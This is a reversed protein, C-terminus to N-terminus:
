FLNQISRYRSISILIYKKVHECRSCVNTHVFTASAPIILSHLSFHKTSKDEM